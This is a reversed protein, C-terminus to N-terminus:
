SSSSSAEGATGGEDKGRAREDGAATDRFGGGGRILSSLVADTSSLPSNSVRVRVRESLKSEPNSDTGGDTCEEGEEERTKGSQTRRESNSLSMSLSEGRFLGPFRRMITDAGADDRGREEVVREDVEREAAEELEM